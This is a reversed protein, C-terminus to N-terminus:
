GKIKYSRIMNRFEEDTNFLDISRDLLKQISFKYKVCNDKFEEYNEKDVKVSTLHQPKTHRM